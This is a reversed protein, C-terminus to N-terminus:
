KVKPSKRFYQRFFVGYILIFFVAATIMSIAFVYAGGLIDYKKILAPAYLFASVLAAGYGFALFAQKRMVTIINYFCLGFTAFGGAILIVLFHFQYADLNIGYFWSLVPLGIIYGVGVVVVSIIFTVGALFLTQKLFRGKDRQEWAESLNPLMPKFLFLGLLSIVFAPMFIISFINLAEPGLLKDITYKPLNNLYTNIYMSAFLPLCALLLKFIPQIRFSPKLKVLNATLPMEFIIIWLAEIVCSVLISVVLDKTMFLCVIMGANALALRMFYSFGALNLYGEKQLTGFFLNSFADLVRFLCLLLTVWTKFPDFGKTLIDVAAFALTAACLLLKTGYYESFRFKNKIDTVQYTSTEFSVVAWMLQSFAYGYSFIGGDTEGSVRNVIMLLVFSALANVGSGMMNWIFGSQFTAKNKLLGTYMQKKM